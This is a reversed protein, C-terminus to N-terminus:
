RSFARSLSPHANGGLIGSGALTESDPVLQVAEALKM